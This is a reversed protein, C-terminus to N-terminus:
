LVLHGPSPPVAGTDWSTQATGLIFEMTGGATLDDHSIWNQTWAQGNVTLTQVYYSGGQENLGQATIHMFKGNGVSLNFDSFWPSLILYVPQTVVPYLGILNWILWSDIAGADSNGPLGSPDNGYFTNVTERSRQVSKFQRGGRFYHYLFPTAFSPENGPNFLTSGVGNTGGSGVATTRLGTVFMTDLRAEATVDGGMFLILTEMDFPVTWSYEWPLAEYAIASWECEGCSLPDYGPLISGNAFQPTLFGTYNLSTVNNSWIRQWGRCYGM